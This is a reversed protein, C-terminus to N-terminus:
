PGEVAVPPLARKHGSSRMWRDIKLALAPSVAGPGDDLYSELDRCSFGLAAEDRQGIWLGASPEREVIPEPVELQRALERVQSKLLGGIPLLDVAGDGYKTYYGVEIECRNGTGAVLCTMANALYYLATMRLRPKLNAIPARGCALEASAATPPATRHTGNKLGEVLVEYTRDLDVHVVPLDFHTAVLRADQEDHPDSHCPLIADVAQGPTALQCLRAVVASDLGGSLGVALGNAGAASM